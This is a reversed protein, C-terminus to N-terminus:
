SYRCVHTPWEWLDHTFLGRENVDDYLQGYGNIEFLFCAATLIGM